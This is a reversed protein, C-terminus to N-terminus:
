DRTRVKASATVVYPLLKNYQETRFKAPVREKKRLIVQYKREVLDYAAANAHLFADIARGPEHIADEFFSESYDDFILLGGIKLLEWAHVGDSLVDAAEHNGDIYVADFMRPTMSRLAKYSDEKKLTVRGEAGIARINKKFQDEAPPWLTFNDICTLHSTPHTM